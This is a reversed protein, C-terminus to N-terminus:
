VDFRTEFGGSLRIVADQPEELRSIEAVTLNLYLGRIARGLGGHSIVVLDQIDGISNYWTRVREAAEALSEGNPFGHGWRDASHAEILGPFRDNIETVSLGEVEGFSVEALLSTFHARDVKIGAAEAINELTERVRGLPSAHIPLDPLHSLNQALWRGIARAQEIGKETLPSNSRGQRKHAVNWETEGHRILYITQNGPRRAFSQPRFAPDTTITM